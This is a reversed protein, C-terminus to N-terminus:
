ELIISIEGGREGMKEVQEALTSKGQEEFSAVVEPPLDVSSRM